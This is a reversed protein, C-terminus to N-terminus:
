VVRGDTKATELRAPAVNSGLGAVRELIPSVLALLAAGGHWSAISAGVIIRRILLIGCADDDVCRAAAMAGGPTASAVVFDVNSLAQEGDWFRTPM